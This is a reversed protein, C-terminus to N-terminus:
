VPKIGIGSFLSMGAFVPHASRAGSARPLAACPSPPAITWGNDVHLSAYPSVGASNACPVAGFGSHSRFPLRGTPSGGNMRRGTSSMSRRNMPCDVKLPAYSAADYWCCCCYGDSTVLVPISRGGPACCLSAAAM